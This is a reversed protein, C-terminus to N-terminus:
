ARVVRSVDEKAILKQKKALKAASKVGMRGGGWVRRLEDYRNLFNDKIAEQLKTFEAKDENRVTTLALVSSTKKGVVKGLRAKGKVIAYPVQLKRCLAPLWVVLEIPEVDHAILVLSAKKQEVLHTVHNLGYKVTFPKPSPAVKEGKTKAEAIAKLRATKSKKDEPKYKDLLAFLHTATQKDLARSFQSIPPPVKLRNYLVRKQRQLRIYRPWRVYRTVDLEPRM